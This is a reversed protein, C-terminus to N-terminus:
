LLHTIELMDPYDICYNSFLKDSRQIGGKLLSQHCSAVLFGSIILTTKWLFNSTLFTKRAATLDLLCARGNVIQNSSFKDLQGNPEQVYLM